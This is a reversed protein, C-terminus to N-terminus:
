GLYVKHKIQHNATAEAAVYNLEQNDKILDVLDNHPNDCHKPNQQAWCKHEATPLSEAVMRDMSSQKTKFRRYATLVEPPGASKIKRHLRLRLARHM